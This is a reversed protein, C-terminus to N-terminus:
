KFLQFASRLNKVLDKLSMNFEMDMQQAIITLDLASTGFTMVSSNIITLQLNEIAAVTKEFVGKRKECHVRILVNKDCFRAEIEPLTEDFSRTFSEGDSCSSHDGQDTFLLQSKKVFVVSEMTKKSTQEELTKVKEQLQKLYKIADGLVSAKDMKKLGPVISSLAIFRQSLKERRKREAIIHDQAQSLRTGAHGIRKAGQCTKIVYNQNAFCSQSNSIDPQSCLLEEKPKLIGMQNVQNPNVVSFNSNPYFDTQSYDWTNTKFQKLPRDSESGAQGSYQKINSATQLTHHPPNQSNEGFAAAMPLLNFNDVYNMQWQNMFCSPDEVMGPESLGKISSIEM